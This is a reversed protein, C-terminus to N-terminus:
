RVIGSPLAGPLARASAPASPSNPAPSPPRPPAPAAGTRATRLRPSSHRAPPRSLRGPRQAPGPRHRGSQGSRARPEPAAPCPSRAPTEPAAGG